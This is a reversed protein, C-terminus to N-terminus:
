KRSGTVEYHRIFPIIAEADAPIARLEGSQTVSDDILGDRTHVCVRVCVCVCVCVRVRARVCVFLCVSM